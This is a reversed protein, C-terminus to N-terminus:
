KGALLLIERLIKSTTLVSIVNTDYDPALEVMDAGIIEYNKFLYIYEMLENYQFGGAEPTGTGPFIGPDLVDLDISLYFYNKSKRLYEKLENSKKIEIINSTNRRKIYEEKSGSRTGIQILNGVNCNKLINNMVTGHSLENGYLKDRLDLHADFHIIDIKKDKYKDSLNKVLPYTILHEGGIAVIKIDKKLFENHYERILNVNKQPDGTTCPINGFDTFSLDELDKDLVPSYTEIAESNLRVADAAFRSGAKFSATCDYPIGVIGLKTDKTFEKSGIFALKSALIM